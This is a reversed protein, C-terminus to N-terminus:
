PTVLVSLPHGFYDRRLLAYKANLDLEVQTAKEKAELALKLKEALRQNDELIFRCLERLIEPNNEHALFSLDQAM